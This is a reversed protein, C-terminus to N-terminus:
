EFQSYFDEELKDFEKNLDDHIKESKSLITGTKAILINNKGLKSYLSVLAKEDEHIRNRLKDITFMVLAILLGTIIGMLVPSIYPAIPALPTTLLFKEFGEELLLGLSTIMSASLLKVIEFLLEENTFDNPPHILMKVAKCLSFVGERIIRVVRKATSVFINVLFTIITSSIGSIVGDKFANLIDKNKKLCNDLANNWVKNLRKKLEKLVSQDTQKNQLGHKIINKIEKFFESVFEQLILGLAERIGLKVGDKTSAKSLDKAYKKIKDKPM